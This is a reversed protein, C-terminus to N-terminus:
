EDHRDSQSSHEFMGTRALKEAYLTAEDALTADWILPAVGVENRATNHARLILDQQYGSPAGYTPYLMYCSMIFFGFLSYAKQM